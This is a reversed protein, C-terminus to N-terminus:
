KWAFGMKKLHADVKSTLSEVEDTLQPLPAAYREALEKIRNASQSAIDQALAEIIAGLTAFWKDDIVLSKIEDTSLRIYEAKVKEDLKEQADRIVRTLKVGAELWELLRNLLDFEERDEANPKGDYAVLANIRAKLSGKSVKGKENYVASLISEEGRYEENMEEVQAILAEYDAHLTEIEKQEASFYRQVILQAPILDSNAIWGETAIMYVDDQMTESWYTMLSQYMDYKDLLPAGAFANLLNEGLASIVEKPHSGVQLGALLPKNKEMWKEFLATITQNFATFEPHAFITPKVHSADVKMESYGARGNAAFLQERLSPFVDWYASLNEIDRNPIGGLLHAAIDQLDEEESNDIYRPINLNYDNKPDSIEALPVMRSYKPIELQRNFVDVIRHIDQHRLRNKNGDKRFGQSANVM